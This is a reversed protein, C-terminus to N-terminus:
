GKGGVPRVDERVRHVVGQSDPVYPWECRVFSADFDDRSVFVVKFLYTKLLTDWFSHLPISTFHPVFYSDYEVSKSVM